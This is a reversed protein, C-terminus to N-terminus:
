SWAVAFNITFSPTSSSPATTEDLYDNQTTCSALLLSAAATVGAFFKVLSKKM